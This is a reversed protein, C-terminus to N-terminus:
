DPRWTVRVPCHDSVEDFGGPKEPHPACALAACMGQVEAGAVDLEAPAMVHDLLSVAYTSQGNPLWYESCKLRGTPLQRGHTAVLSDISVREDSHENLYGTSNFDGAFIVPVGLAREWAPIAAMLWAWERRREPWRDLAIMHLSGLAFTRGDGDRLVALMGHPQDEACGGAGAFPLRAVLEYRRADYVVGLHMSRTVASRPCYPAMAMAYTRGTREGADALVAAFESLGRIEQVAFADADLEALAGAVAEPRTDTDMFMRINFTGLVVAPPRGCWWVLAVVVLLLVVALRRRRRRDM